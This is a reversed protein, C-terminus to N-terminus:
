DAPIDYVLEYRDGVLIMDNVEVPLGRTDFAVRTVTLVPMGPELQLVDAEDATAPRTAVYERFYGLQYGLEELVRYAGGKGTDVQELRTSEAVELPFRSVALQVPVGDARMVRDRVLVPEGEDLGLMEATRADVPETRVTTESTAVFGGVAADAKFAGQDAERAARSLRTSALRQVTPQERVFVGAGRRSVTLGEKHLLNLANQVTQVAVGYRKMLATSSPLQHGPKYDGRKIAARLDAAIKRSPTEARPPPPTEGEM